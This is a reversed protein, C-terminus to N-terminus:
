EEYIGGVIDLEEVSKIGFLKIYKEGEWWDFFFEINDMGTPIVVEKRLTYNNGDYSTEMSVIVTDCANHDWYRRIYEGVVSYGTQGDRLIINVM